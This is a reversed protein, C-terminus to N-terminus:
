QYGFYFGHGIEFTRGWVAPEWQVGYDSGIDEVLKEIDVVLQCCFLVLWGVDVGM